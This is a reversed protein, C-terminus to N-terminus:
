PTPSKPLVSPSVAALVLAIDEMSVHGHNIASALANAVAAVLVLLGVVKHKDSLFAKM